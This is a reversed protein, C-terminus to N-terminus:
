IGEPTQLEGDMGAKLLTALVFVMRHCSEEKDDTIQWFGLLPVDLRRLVDVRQLIRLYSDKSTSEDGSNVVMSKERRLHGISGADLSSALPYRPIDTRREKDEFLTALKEEGAASNPRQKAPPQMDVWSSQAASGSRASTKGYSSEETVRQLGIKHAPDSLRTSEAGQPFTGCRAADSLSLLASSMSSLILLINLQVSLQFRAM